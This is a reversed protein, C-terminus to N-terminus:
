QSCVEGSGSRQEDCYAGKSNNKVVESFGGGGGDLRRLSSGGFTLIKRLYKETENNRSELTMRLMVSRSERRIEELVTM